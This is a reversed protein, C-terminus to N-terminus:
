GERPQQVKKQQTIGHVIDSRTHVDQHIISKNRLGKPLEIVVLSQSERLITLLIAAATAVVGVPVDQHNLGDAPGSLYKSDM